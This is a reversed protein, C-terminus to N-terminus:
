RYRAMPKDSIIRLTAREHSLADYSTACITTHRHFHRSFFHAASCHQLPLHVQSCRSPARLLPVTCFRKHRAQQTPTQTYQVRIHHEHVNKTHVIARASNTGFIVRFHRKSRDASGHVKYLIRDDGAKCFQRRRIGRNGTCIMDGFRLIAAIYLTHM